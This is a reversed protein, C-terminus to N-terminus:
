DTVNKVLWQKTTAELPPCEGEEPNGFQGRRWSGAEILLSECCSLGLLGRVSVLKGVLESRVGLKAQKYCRPVSIMSFVMGRNSNVPQQRIAAMTYNSMVRDNSLLPDARWLIIVKQTMDVSKLSGEEWFPSLYISILDSSHIYTHARAQIHAETGSELESCFSGFPSYAMPLWGSRIIKLEQLKYYCSLSSNTLRSPCYSCQIYHGSIIYLLPVGFRVVKSLVATLDNEV